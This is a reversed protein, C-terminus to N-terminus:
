SPRAPSFPNAKRPRINQKRRDFEGHFKQPLQSKLCVILFYENVNPCRPFSANKKVLRSSKAIRFVEFRVPSPPEGIIPEENAITTTVAAAMENDNPLLARASIRISTSLDVWRM